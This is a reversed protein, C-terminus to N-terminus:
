YIKTMLLNQPLRIIFIESSMIVMVTQPILPFSRVRLYLRFSSYSISQNTLLYPFWIGLSPPLMFLIVSVLPLLVWRAPLTPKHPLFPLLNAYIISPWSQTGTCCSLSHCLKSVLLTMQPRITKSLLKDLFLGLGAIQCSVQVM